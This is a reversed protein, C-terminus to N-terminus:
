LYASPEWRSRSPAAPRHNSHPISIPYATHSSTSAPNLRALTDFLKAVEAETSPVDGVPQAAQSPEQSLPTFTIRVPSSPPSSAPSLGRPSGGGGDSLRKKRPTTSLLDPLPYVLILASQTIYLPIIVGSIDSVRQTPLGPCLSQALYNFWHDGTTVVVNPRHREIALWIQQDQAIRAFVFEFSHPRAENTKLGIIWEDTVGFAPLLFLVVPRRYPSGGNGRLAEAYDTPRLSSGSFFADGVLRPVSSESATATM